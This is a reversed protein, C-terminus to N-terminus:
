IEIVEREVNGANGPINKVPFAALGNAGNTKGNSRERTGLRDVSQETEKEAQEQSNNPVRSREADLDNAKEAKRANGTKKAKPVSPVNQAPPEYDPLQYKKGFLAIEGKQRM